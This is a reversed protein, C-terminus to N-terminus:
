YHTYLMLENRWQAHMDLLASPFNLSCEFLTTLHDSTKQFEVRAGAIHLNGLLNMVNFTACNTRFIACKVIEISGRPGRAQM